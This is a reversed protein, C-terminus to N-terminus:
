PHENGTGKPFSLALESEQPLNERGQRRETQELEQVPLQQVHAANHAGVGAPEGVRHPATRLLTRV